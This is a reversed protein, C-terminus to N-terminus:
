VMFEINYSNDSLKTINGVNKFYNKILNLLNEDKKHLGIAFTLDARYGITM